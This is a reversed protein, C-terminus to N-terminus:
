RMLDRRCSWRQGDRRTANAPLGRLFDQDTKCRGFTERTEKPLIENFAVGTSSELLQVNVGKLMRMGVVLRERAAAVGTLQETQATPNQGAELRKMYTLTSQHNTSRTGNVFRSAGPGFAFYDNGNWYSQNHRCQHGPKCFSSLEYHEWGAQELQQRSHEYMDARLDEGSVELGGRQLRNWFQTGKEYTLEYTSLHDPHLALAAALDTQWQLLTEQPAAFILDMSVSTVNAKALEVAAAVDSASHDRELRNLKDPNLSQVGLSIRNVGLRLLADIKEQDIDNPNCEASVEADGALTFRQAVIQRLRDLQKRSLHSPTGGGYFLTDLEVLDPLLQIEIELADLFREVLHDRGAVLSFNCYGCRHRCFPVHIYASRPLPNIPKM